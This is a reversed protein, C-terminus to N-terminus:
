PCVVTSGAIQGSLISKSVGQYDVCWGGGGILSSKVAYQTLNAGCVLTPAPNIGTFQLYANPNGNAASTDAFMGSACDSVTAGYNTPTQNTYYIEAARRFGVLQQKVKSDYAKTRSNSLSSLIIGSVVGIIAIVILLEILTFGSKYNKIKM